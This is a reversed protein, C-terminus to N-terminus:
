TRLVAPVALGLPKRSRDARETCSLVFTSPRCELPRDCIRWSSGDSRHVRGRRGRSCQTSRGYHAIRAITIRRQRTKRRRGRRSGPPTTGLSKLPQVTTVGRYGLQLSTAPSEPTQDAHLHDPLWPRNISSPSCTTPCSSALRARRSPMANDFAQNRPRPRLPRGPPVSHAGSLMSHPHGRITFKPYPILCNCGPLGAAPYIRLAIANM